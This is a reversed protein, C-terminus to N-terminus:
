PIASRKLIARADRWNPLFQDMLAYFRANHGRELLHAMEHVVVYTLCCVPFRALELNLWIRQATINCSGWRTRMRRVRWQRVHVGMVPEWTEILTSIVSALRARYWDDLLSARHERDTGPMAFLPIVDDQEGRDATHSDIIRLQHPIGFVPVTDGTQFEIRNASELARAASQRRLIWEGRSCVITHIAEESLRMPASVRVRSDHRDVRIYVNKIPKRILEFPIDTSEVRVLRTTLDPM